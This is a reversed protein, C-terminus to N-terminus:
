NETAKIMEAVFNTRVTILSGPIARGREVIESGSPIEAGTTITDGKFDLNKVKKGVEVRTGHGKSPSTQAVASGGACAIIALSILIKRV